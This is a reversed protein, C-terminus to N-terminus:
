ECPKSFYNPNNTTCEFKYKIKKISVYVIEIGTPWETIIYRAANPNEYKEYYYFRHGTKGNAEVATEVKELFIDIKEKKETNYIAYGLMPVGGLESIKLGNEFALMLAKSKGDASNACYYKTQAVSFYSIHILVIVLIIKM